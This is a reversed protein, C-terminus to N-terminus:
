GNLSAVALFNDVANQFFRMNHPPEFQSSGRKKNINVNSGTTKLCNECGRMKLDNEFDFLLVFCIALAKLPNDPLSKPNYKPPTLPARIVTICLRM